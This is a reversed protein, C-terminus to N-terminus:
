VGTCIIMCVGLSFATDCSLADEHLAAYNRELWDVCRIYELNDADQERLIKMDEQLYSCFVEFMDQKKQLETPAAALKEREITINQYGLQSLLKPLKKACVRDGACPDLQLFRKFESFRGGKDPTIESLEDNMDMVMLVGEPMLLTKLKELLTAPDELHMLVFSLHIVDFAPIDQERMVERIHPVFSGDEVDMHYFSFRADTCNNRATQVLKANCELGIVKKTLTHSFRKLTKRGDNAGIDLVFRRPRALVKEYVPQEYPFFLKEQISLREIEKRQQFVTVEKM